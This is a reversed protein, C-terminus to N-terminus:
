GVEEPFSHECREWPPVGCDCEVRVYREGVVVVGASVEPGRQKALWSREFEKREVWCARCLTKWPEAVQRKFEGACAECPVNEQGFLFGQKM